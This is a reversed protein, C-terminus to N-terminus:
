KEETDTMQAGMKLAAKLLHNDELICRVHCPHGLFNSIIREAVRQNEIKEIQEKHYPYRFALCVTGNEVTVPKVGASRLIAIAPTKKADGPAQEIIQKWNLKLREVESNAEIPTIAAAARAPEPVAAPGPKAPIQRTHSPTTTPAPSPPPAEQQRSEPKAPPILSEKAAPKALQEKEGASPSAADILALEMPLTSYSDFGLELEGFLKVARLVQELTAGAALAKLEAIDEATLDLSDETGTKVLLLARLYGVVERNFQKLDLGDNSVSNITTIGASVENNIIHKVLEKTRWDGTIGLIAQVQQLNIEDGYYTTLQQLLNEADRLSGTASRAILRLAETEVQIGETACIQTLKSSIDSQSLRRFDFRQCRSVITPLIKHAETTALIFIVHPPPEELTKLLANSASNSLMHVEDIIYVKYRAQGPAYNVKERLNRIDDVGTNSAADIEIIDMSRAETIALCLDCTNCPEGNGNNLCNVAKALIRGTSTKGTGRPGCFLYAHSIRGSSLANRLTQTVPEQGVIEALTQPRWKRYFVQSSM